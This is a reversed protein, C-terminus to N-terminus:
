VWPDRGTNLIVEVIGVIMILMYCGIAIDM